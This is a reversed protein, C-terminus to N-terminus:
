GLDEGAYFWFGLPTLAWVARPRKQPPKLLKWYFQFVNSFVPFSLCTQVASVFYSEVRSYALLHIEPPATAHRPKREVPGQGLPLLLVCCSGLRASL